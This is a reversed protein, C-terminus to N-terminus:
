ETDAPAPGIYKFSMMTIDDFQEAERVFMDLSQRVNALATRPAAEPDKNLAALLRDTGFLNRDKDAAEPVGDTYVFLKSGPELRVTYESYPIGDFGGVVFDHKDKYLEYCGGPRCIVPYEHGANGATLIGTSIELVGIWVTVFMDEKNNSCIAENTAELIKAPSRLLKANNTLMIMSAMMFLAAPVGKGSVDAMVLCLHDDDILFFDYFDGGVEKAPDMSAYLDFEKRDPFAPFETPLMSTQIGTALTLEASIREKEATITEIKGLYDDIENTLDVVDESLEGIENRSRIKSLNETVAKSDKTTNYMRINKQVKRLPRLVFMFILFLTFLSLIVQLIVAALTGRQIQASVEETLDQMNYTLGVFVHCDDVSGLFKYYDYYNGAEALHSSHRYASRMALQQSGGEELTVTNGLPYVEEYNTGRVAGDDAASVLFFQESYTNDTAVVFLYDIGYAKKIQNVRTVLWSYTIEAYLKQDEASLSKAEESNVYMIELEPHRATFLRSKKETDTGAGYTVDYEIDMEDSHTRWYKILWEYSPYEKVASIVEQAVSSGYNETQNMVSDVAMASQAVFTIIGVTIIGLVFFIAVQTLVSLKRGKKRSQPDM